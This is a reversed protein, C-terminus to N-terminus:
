RATKLITLMANESHVIGNENTKLRKEQLRLMQVILGHKKMM